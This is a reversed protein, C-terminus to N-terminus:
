PASADASGADRPSATMIATATPASASPTAYPRAPTGRACTSKTASWESATRKASMNRTPMLTPPLRPRNPLSRCYWTRTSMMGAPMTIPETAPPRTHAGSAPMDSGSPAATADPSPHYLRAPTMIVSMAPACAPLMVNRAFRSRSSTDNKLM